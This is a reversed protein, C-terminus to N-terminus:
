KVIFNIEFIGTKNGNLDKIKIVSKVNGILTDTLNLKTNIIVPKNEFNKSVDIINGNKGFVDIQEAVKKEDKYLIVDQNYNVKGQFVQFNNVPVSIHINELPLFEKNERPIIKGKEEVGIKIQPLDLELLFVEQVPASPEINIVSASPSPTNINNETKSKKEAETNLSSNCSFVFMWLLILFIKNM